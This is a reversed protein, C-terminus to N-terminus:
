LASYVFRAGAGKPAPLKQVLGETELLGINVNISQRSVRKGTDKRIATLLQKTTLRQGPRNHLAQLAAIKVPSRRQRRVKTRRGTKVPPAVAKGPENMLAQIHNLKAECARIQQRCEEIKQEHEQQQRRWTQLKKTYLSRLEGLSRNANSTM